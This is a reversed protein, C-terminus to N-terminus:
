YVILIVLANLCYLIRAAIVMTLIHFYFMNNESTKAQKGWIEEPVVLDHMLCDGFICFCRCKDM